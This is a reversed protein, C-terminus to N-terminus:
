CKLIASNNTCSSRSRVKDPCCIDLARGGGTKRARAIYDLTAAYAVVMVTTMVSDYDEVDEEDNTVSCPEPTRGLSRRSCLHLVVLRVYRVFKTAKFVISSELLHCILVVM